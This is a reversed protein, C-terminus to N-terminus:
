EREALRRVAVVVADERTMEESHGRGKVVLLRAGPLDEVKWGTQELFERALDVDASSISVRGAAMWREIMRGVALEFRSTVTRPREETVVHEV